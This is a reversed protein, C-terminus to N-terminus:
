VGSTDALCKRSRASLLFANAYMTSAAQQIALPFSPLMSTLFGLAGERRLARSGFRSPRARREYLANLGDIFTYACQVHRPADRGQGPTPPDLSSGHRRARCPKPWRRRDASPPVLAVNPGILRPQHGSAVSYPPPGARTAVHPLVLLALGSRPAKCSARRGDAILHRSITLGLGTGGFRGQEHAAQVFPEFVKAIDVDAIGIGTDIVEIRVTIAANARALVSVIVDVTGQETFKIANGILNVLVQRLRGADARIREPLRPDLRAAVTLQGEPRQQRARSVGPDRECRYTTWSSSPKPRRRAHCSFCVDVLSRARRRQAPRSSSSASPPATKMRLCCSTMAIFGHM